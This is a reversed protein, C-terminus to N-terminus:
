GNIKWGQRILCGTSLEDDQQRTVIAKTNKHHERGLILGADTNLPRRYPSVRTHWGLTRSLCIAKDRSPTEQADLERRVHLSDSRSRFPSTGPSVRHAIAARQQDSPAPTTNGQRRKPDQSSPRVAHIVGSDLNGTRRGSRLHPRFSRRRAGLRQIRAHVRLWRLGRRRHLLPRAAARQRPQDGFDPLLLKIAIELILRLDAHLIAHELHHDGRVKDALQQRPSERDLQLPDGLGFQPV